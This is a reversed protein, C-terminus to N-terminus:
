PRPKSEGTLRRRCEAQRVVAAIMHAGGDTIYREKQDAAVSALAVKAGPNSSPLRLPLNYCTAIERALGLVSLCDPRNATVDFDIVGDGDALPEIAAVEFGRLGLTDAIEEPAASVDVFDRVWSVLLRM